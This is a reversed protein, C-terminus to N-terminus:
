GGPRWAPSTNSSPDQTVQVEAGGFASAIWIDSEDVDTSSTRSFAIRQSDPSWTPSFGSQVVRVIGSGDPRVTRIEGSVGYAIRSGDPAWAPAVPSGGVEIWYSRTGDPHVFSLVHGFPDSSYAIWQGDSSWVPGAAVFYETHVPHISGDALDLIMLARDTSNLPTRLFAIQRGDPSWSPNTDHWPGGRTLPRDNSGDEDVIRLGSGTATPEGVSYDVALRSYAISRGDPSWAPTSDEDFNSTLARFGSGDANMVAVEHDNDYLTSSYV